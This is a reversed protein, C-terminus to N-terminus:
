RIVDMDYVLIKPDPNYAIGYILSNELDICFNYLNSLIRYKELLRGEKNLLHFERGYNSGSTKEEGSYLGLVINGMFDAALYGMPSQQYVSNGDKRYEFDSSTYEWSKQVSDVITEYQTLTGSMYVVSLLKDGTESPYQRGYNAKSVTMSDKDAKNGVLYDTCTNIRHLSDVDLITYKHATRGTAIYFDKLRYIELYRSTMPLKLKRIPLCKGKYYNLSDISYVVCERKMNDFLSLFWKGDLRHVDMSAIQLFEDAGQGKTAFSYLISDNAIDIADICCNDSFSYNVFLVNGVKKILTPSGIEVNLSDSPLWEKMETTDKAPICSAFLIIIFIAYKM